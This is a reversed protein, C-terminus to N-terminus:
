FHSATKLLLTDSSKNPLALFLRRDRIGDAADGFGGAPLQHHVPLLVLPVAPEVHRLGHLELAVGPVAADHSAPHAGGGRRRDGSAQRSGRPIVALVGSLRLQLRSSVHLSNPTLLLTQNKPSKKQALGGVTGRKTFLRKGGLKGWPKKKRRM